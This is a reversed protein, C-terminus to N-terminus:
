PTRDGNRLRVLLHLYMYAPLFGLRIVIHCPRSGAAAYSAYKEAMARHSPPSALGELALTVTLSTM